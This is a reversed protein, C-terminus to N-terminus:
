GKVATSALSQVFRKQGLLFALMVPATIIFNGAMVAAWATHRTGQFTTMGLQVTYAASSQVSILPWSLDNWVSLLTLLALGVLAPRALPVLVRWIVGLTSCGDIRAAEELERPLAVFFQRLMFVGLSVSGVLPQVILGGLNDILGLDHFLIFTPIMTLQFPIALTGLILTFVLNAGRFRLRAFAYAALVSLVLTLVVVSASVVMSNTFWRPFDSHALVKRFGGLTVETPIVTPPFRNIERETQIATDAMWAFPVVFILALPMLVLHAPHFLRRRRRTAGASSVASM